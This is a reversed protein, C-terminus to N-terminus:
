SQPTPLSTDGHVAAGFDRERINASDTTWPTSVCSKKSWIAVTTYIYQSYLNLSCFAYMSLSHLFVPQASIRLSWFSVENYQCTGYSMCCSPSPFLRVAASLALDCPLATSYPASLFGAVRSFPFGSVARELAPAGSSDHASGLPWSKRKTLNGCSKQMNSAKLPRSPSCFLPSDPESM